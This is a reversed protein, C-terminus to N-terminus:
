SAPAQESDPNIEYLRHTLPNIELLFESECFLSQERYLIQGAKLFYNGDYNQVERWSVHFLYQPYKESAEKLWPIFEFHKTYVHFASHGNIYDYLLNWTGGEAEDYWQMHDGEIYRKVPMAHSSSDQNKIDEAMKLLFRELNVPALGYITVRTFTPASM